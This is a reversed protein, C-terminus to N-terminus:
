LDSWARRAMPESRTGRHGGRSGNNNSNSDEDNEEDEDDCVHFEAPGCLIREPLTIMPVDDVSLCGSSVHAHTMTWLDSCVNTQMRHFRQLSGNRAQHVVARSRDRMIQSTQVVLSVIRRTAPRELWLTAADVDVCTAESGNTEGDRQRRRCSRGLHYDGRKPQLACECAPECRISRWDWRCEADTDPIQVIQLAVHYSENM